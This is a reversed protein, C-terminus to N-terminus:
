YRCYERNDNDYHLLDVHLLLLPHVLSLQDPPSEGTEVVLVELDAITVEYESLYITHNDRKGNDCM